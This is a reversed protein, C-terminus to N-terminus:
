LFCLLLRRIWAEIDGKTKSGWDM